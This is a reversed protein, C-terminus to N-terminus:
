FFINNRFMTKLKSMKDQKTNQNIFKSEEHNVSRQPGTRELNRKTNKEQDIKPKTKTRPENRPENNTTRITNQKM